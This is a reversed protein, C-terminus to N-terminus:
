LSKEWEDLQKRIEEIAVDVRPMRLVKDAVLVLSAQSEQVRQVEAEMRRLWEPVDLGVGTPSAIFPELERRLAAFARREGEERSEEIVPEILACLRDLA